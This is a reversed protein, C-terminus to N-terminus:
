ITADSMNSSNHITTYDTRVVASCHWGAGPHSKFGCAKPSRFAAFNTESRLFNEGLAIHGFQPFRLWGVIKVVGRTEPAVTFVYLLPGASNVM